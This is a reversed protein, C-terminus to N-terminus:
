KMSYFIDLQHIHGKVEKVGLLNTTDHLAYIVVRTDLREQHSVGDVHDKRNGIENHEGNHQSIIM